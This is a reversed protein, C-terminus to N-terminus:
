QIITSQPLDTPSSVHQLTPSNFDTLNTQRQISLLQGPSLQHQHGANIIIIQYSGVQSLAEPLDIIQASLQHRAASTNWNQPTQIYEISLLRDGVLVERLSKSVKLTSLSGSRTIIGEGIHLAQFGLPEDTIPDLLPKGARVIAFIQDTPLREHSSVYVEDGQSYMLRQDRSGIIKATQAYQSPEILLPQSLLSSLVHMPLPRHNGEIPDNLSYELAPERDVINGRILKIYPQKQDTLVHLSDGPYILHPNHIHPNTRWIDPWLWPDELFISSIDLLTDGKKVIYSDPHDSNLIPSTSSHAVASAILGIIM